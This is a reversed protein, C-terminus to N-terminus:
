VHAVPCIVPYLPSLGRSPVYNLPSPDYLTPKTYVVASPLTVDYRTILTLIRRHTSAAEGDYHGIMIRSKRVYSTVIEKQIPHSFLTCHM